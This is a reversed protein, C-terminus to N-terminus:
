TPPLPTIVTTEYDMPMSALPPLGLERRYIGTLRAIRSGDAATQVDLSVTVNTDAGGVLKTQVLSQLQTQNLTPDLLLARSSQELAARLSSACHQGWGLQFVGVVIAVFVPMVIAFEAAGAGRRDRWFQTPREVSM